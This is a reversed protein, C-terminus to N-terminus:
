LFTDVTDALYTQDPDAGTNESLSLSQRLYEQRPDSVAAGSSSITPPMANTIQHFLEMTTYDSMFASTPKPVATSVSVTGLVMPPDQINNAGVPLDQISGKHNSDIPFAEKPTPDITTLTTSSSPKNEEPPSSTNPILNAKTRDQSAFQTEKKAELVFVHEETEELYPRSLLEMVELDQAGEIKQVANSNCPNPISPWLMNKSRKLLRFCLHTALLLAFVGAIVGVLMGGVAMSDLTEFCKSESRKGEGAATVASLEMCYMSGSRLNLLEYSNVSPDVTIDPLVDKTSNDQTHRIIYGQLFGRLDEECVPSWTIVFSNQTVKSSSVNGPASLPTGETLYVQTRGVTEDSNNVKKLNCTDKEHRAHLFFHYRKYPRFAVNQTQITHYNKKEYIPKYSLKEDSTWWEVSYCHYKRSLMSNWLLSFSDNSNLTVNFAEDLDNQDVLADVDLFAAPSQGAENLASISLKYASYCLFLTVSQVKLFYSSEVAPEGSAKQVTVNYVEVAHSHVYEWKVTIKRQGTQVLHYGTENIVPADSLEQPVRIVESLPCQPCEPTEVCRIQMEYSQSSVVDGVTCDRRTQSKVEKWETTNHERYKLHYHKVNSDNWKATVNLYGYSRKFTVNNPPGCQIILLPHGSFKAFACRNQDDSTAIAFATLNKNNALSIQAKSSLIKNTKLICLRQKIFLFYKDYKGPNWVCYYDIMADTIRQGFCSLNQVGEFVNCREECLTMNKCNCFVASTNSITWISLIFGTLLGFYLVSQM